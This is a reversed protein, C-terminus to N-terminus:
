LTVSHILNLMMITTAISEKSLGNQSAWSKEVRFQVKAKDLSGALNEADIQIYQYVKGSKTVSVEAPKGDHKTVTIKVNQAENNVIIEIQKVGIEADFDKMVSAVGPTILTWLHIKRPPQPVISGGGGCAQTLLSVTESATNGANDTATVTIDYSTGCSLGTIKAGSVTGDSSSLVCTSIGSATDGADSCKTSSFDTTISDRSFSTREVATATPATSENISVLSSAYPVASYSVNTENTIATVNAGITFGYTASSSL